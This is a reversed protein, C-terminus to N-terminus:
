RHRPLLHETSIYEDNFCRAEETAQEIVRKMRPTIFVQAVSQPFM